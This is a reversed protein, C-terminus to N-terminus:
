TRKWWCKKKGLFYCKQTLHSNEPKQIDENKRGYAVSPEGIKLLWEARNLVSVNDYTIFVAPLEM